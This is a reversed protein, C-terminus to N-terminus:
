SLLDDIEGRRVAVLWGAETKGSHQKPAKPRVAAVCLVSAMFAAPRRLGEEGRYGHHLRRIRYTCIQYTREGGNPQKKTVALEEGGHYLRGLLSAIRSGLKPDIALDADAQPESNGAGGHPLTPLAAHFMDIVHPRSSATPHDSNAM